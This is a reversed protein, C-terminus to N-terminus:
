VKIKVTKKKKKYDLIRVKCNKNPYRVRGWVWSWTESLHKLFSYYYQKIRLIKLSLGLSTVPAMETKKVSKAYATAHPLFQPPWSNFPHAKKSFSFFFIGITSASFCYRPILMQTKIWGAKGGLKWRGPHIFGIPKLLNSNIKQRKFRTCDQYCLM